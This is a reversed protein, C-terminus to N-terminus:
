IRPTDRLEARAQGPTRGTWRRFTTGFNSQDAFCLRHAIEALPVEPDALYTLALGYRLDEVIQRYGANEDATLRRSLTRESMSLAAAVKSLSPLEGPLHDMVVAEVRARLLHKRPQQRKLLLDGYDALHQRLGADGTVTPCDLVDRPFTVETRKADLEVPAAFQRELQEAGHRRLNALGVRLPPYLNGTAVEIVRVILGVYFESMQTHRALRLDTNGITITFDTRTKHLNLIVNPRTLVLYRRLAEFLGDITASAFSIYAPLAGQLPNYQLAIESALVDNGTQRCLLELLRAEQYSTVPRDPEDLFQRSLGVQDLAPGPGLDAVPKYSLVARVLFDPVIAGDQTPLSYDHM